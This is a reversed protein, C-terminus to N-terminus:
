KRKSLVLLNVLGIVIAIIVAAIIGAFILTNDAAPQTGTSGNTEPAATVAMATEAYSAWYSESGAFTAVVTYMGAVAPTWMYSFLGSMDSTAKGISIHKGSSDIADLTVEVGTTDHPIPYQYHLYEMWGSMSADSVAPTNPQAPSLDMVTGQIVMGTGVPQAAVTTTTKGKAFAYQIGDYESTGILYGDAIAQLGGTTGRLRWLVKGTHADYCLIMNGRVRPQTTSHETTGIYIKDDAIIGSRGGWTMWPTETTNGAFDSQIV